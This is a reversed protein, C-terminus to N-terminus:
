IVLFIIPPDGILAIATSLKRKMGGSYTKSPKDAFKTLSLKTIAWDVVQFSCM